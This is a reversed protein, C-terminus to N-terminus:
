DANEETSSMELIAEDQRKLREAEREEDGAEERESFLRKDGCPPEGALEKIAAEREEDDKFDAM